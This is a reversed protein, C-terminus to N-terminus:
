FFSPKVFAPTCERLVKNTTTKNITVVSKTECSNSNKTTIVEITAINEDVNPIKHNFINTETTYNKWDLQRLKM